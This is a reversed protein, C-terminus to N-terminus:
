YENTFIFISCKSLIKVDVRCSDFDVINARLAISHAINCRRTTENNATLRTTLEVMGKRWLCLLRATTKALYPPLSTSTSTRRMTPSRRISSPTTTSSCRRPCTPPHAHYSMVNSINLALHAVTAGKKYSAQSKAIYQMLLGTALGGIVAFAMTIVMAAFQRGAQKPATWGGKGGM